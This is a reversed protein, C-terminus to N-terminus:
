IEHPVQTTLDHHALASVLCVVGGPVKRAVTILDPETLPPLDALRHLGRGVRELAGHDRLAYLIRPHVGLRIAEGTRLGAPHARFLPLAREEAMSSKRGPQISSGATSSM